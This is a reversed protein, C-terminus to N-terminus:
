ETLEKPKPVEEIVIDSDKPEIIGSSRQFKEVDGINLPRAGLKEMEKIIEDTTMPKTSQVVVIDEPRIDKESKVPIDKNQSDVSDLKEIM